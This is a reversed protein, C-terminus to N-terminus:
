VQWVVKGFATLGSMENSPLNDEGYGKEWILCQKSFPIPLTYYSADNILALVTSSVLCNGSQGILNLM